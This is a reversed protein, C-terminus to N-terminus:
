DDKYQEFYDQDIKNITISDKESVGVGHKEMLEALRLGNILVVSVDNRTKLRDEADSTFKSTTIFIGKKSSADLVGIFADIDKARVLNGRDYRKCQVYIKALGLEDEYVIGDFGGDRSHKTPEAKGGYMRELLDLALEEFGRPSIKLVEELLDAHLSESYETIGRQIAEEPTASGTSPADASGTGEGRSKSKWEAFSEFRLLYNTDIRSPREDLVDRGRQTIRFKGRSPIELLGAFKLYTKAWHLRNHAYTTSRNRKSPMPRNREDESLGMSDSVPRVTNALDYEGGDSVEKLLPLMFEEFPPVM